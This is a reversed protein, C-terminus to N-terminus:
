GPKQPIGIFTRIFNIAEDTYIYIVSEDSVGFNYQEWMSKEYLIGFAYYFRDIM